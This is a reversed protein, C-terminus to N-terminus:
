LYSSCKAYRKPSTGVAKTFSKVFNVYDNFGSQECAESVSAGSVLLTKALAIRRATLYKYITTGTESKFVRCIYSESVFFETSLISITFKDSIHHNIYDIVKDVLPNNQSLTDPNELQQERFIRNLLVMLEMFTAKELLEQGYGEASIIKHLYYKLLKQIEGNPRIRNSYGDGRERFCFKLDTQPSSLNDLYEPFISLVIREHTMKDIQSLYHSEYNNIVFIDGPSIDYSKDGILFQKGGSISIYVEYCNHIHMEMTAEDSYLHAISFTKQEICAKVAEKCNSFVDMM